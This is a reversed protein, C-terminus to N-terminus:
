QQKFLIRASQLQEATGLLLLQDDPLLEEDPGPNIISDSGRAIGVITAGTHTRLEVERILKNISTNDKELVVTDLEARLLLGPLPRSTVVQQSDASQQLTEGLTFQATAYVRIFSRWFIHTTLAVVLLLAILVPWPPLLAYGLTLVLLGIIFVGAALLANTIVSRLAYTQQQRERNHPISIEALVMATARLKRFTAILLPVTLLTALLWLAGHNGGFWSPILNFHDDLWHATTNATIFLGSVLTLNLTMQMAWRWLLRRIHSNRQTREMRRVTWRNYLQATQLVPNPIIHRLVDALPNAYRLLYPTVFATIASITVVIPYLFDSTVGLTLGLSAIIFAFEGIQTLGIGVRFSTRADHGTVFTGFSCVSIKGIILAITIITIPLLYEYLIHLDILMGVAVFFVASFLDRVPEVLHNIQAGERAEAIVAGIIFAGLAVSYEMRLALLSVGFCLGLATILLMENSKFHAVFRLLKPVTLLGAVLAVALFVGLRGLTSFVEGPVFSGTMAISSILAIVAIGLIDEVIQIGFIVSSFKEKMMGLDELAKLVLPTSSISLMAGLFLSDMTNWGFFRGTIYGLSLMVIIDATAVFFATPGVQALKRLSFQLGLSFMLFLVGLEAMLDITYRDQILPFPPTNPGIIVGALIYGLVVPQKFLHFLVTVLGAVIMVVALDQLFAVHM